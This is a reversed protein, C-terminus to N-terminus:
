ISNIGYTYKGNFYMLWIQYMQATDFIPLTRDLSEEYYKDPQLGSTNMEYAEWYPLIERSYLEKDLADIIMSCERGSGSFIIAETHSNFCPINTLSKNSWIKEQDSLWAEYKNRAITIASDVMSKMKLTNLISKEMDIEGKPIIMPIWEPRGTLSGTLRGKKHYNTTSNSSYKGVHNNRRIMPKNELDLSDSFDIDTSTVM